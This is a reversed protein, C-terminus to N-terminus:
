VHLNYVLGKIAPERKQLQKSRSRVTDGFKRKIVSNVTECKWRQGYVGDLRATVVLEARGQREASRLHGGRRIPPILDGDRLTTGDFGKDGLLLWVPRGHEHKGYRNAQRRLSPLLKVDCTHKDGMRWGLVFQSQTGVAYGSKIFESLTRGTRSQFYTSAQSLAFGTSDVAVIEENLDFQELLREKLQHWDLMQLKAFTRQLTSHDPIRPLNLTKCVSASALLWEEMDRYSLNLYFMMLVCSALQPLTFHHPSKRHSYRPLVQNTLAHALRAVRVYRSERNTM